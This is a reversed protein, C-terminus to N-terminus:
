KAYKSMQLVQLNLCQRYAVKNIASFLGQHNRATGITHLMSTSAIGTSEYTIGDRHSMACLPDGSGKSSKVSLM